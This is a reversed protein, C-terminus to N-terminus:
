VPPGAHCTADDGEGQQGCEGRTRGDGGDHRVRASGARRDALRLVLDVDVGRRRLIQLLDITDAAGHGLADDVVALLVPRELAALIQALDLADARAEPLAIAITDDHLLSGLKQKALSFAPPVILAIRDSHCCREMPTGTSLEASPQRSRAGPRSDADPEPHHSSPGRPPSASFLL